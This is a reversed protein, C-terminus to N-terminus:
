GNRRDISRAIVKAVAERRLRADDTSSAAHAVTVKYGKVVIVSPAAPPVLSAIFDPIGEPTFFSIRGREDASLGELLTAEYRSQTAKSKALVVALRPYAAALCKRVNEREHEVPTSVSIEVAALVGDRGILVDVQGTGDPLSAEITAKLGQQIALEKVLSQLYRHKPGGKGPERIEALAAIRPIENTVPSDASQVDPLLESAEVDTTATQVVPAAAGEVLLKAPEQQMAAELTGCYRKRNADRLLAWEIGGFKDGVNVRQNAIDGQRRRGVARCLEIRIDGLQLGKGGLSL